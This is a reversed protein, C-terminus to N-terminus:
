KTRVAEDRVLQLILNTFLSDAGLDHELNHSLCKFINSATTLSLSFEKSLGANKSLQELHIAIDQAQTIQNM